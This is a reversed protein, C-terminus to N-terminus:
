RQIIGRDWYPEDGFYDVIFDIFTRVKPLLFKRNPYVIYAKMEDTQWDDFLRVLRGSRLHEHVLFTPQYVIGLGGVAANCLINGNNAFFNGQLKVGM